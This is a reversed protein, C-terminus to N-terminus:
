TTKSNSEQALVVAIEEKIAVLEAPNAIKNKQALQYSVHRVQLMELKERGSASRVQAFLNAWMIKVGKSKTM